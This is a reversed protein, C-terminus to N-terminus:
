TKVLRFGFDVTALGDTQWSIEISDSDLRAVSAVSVVEWDTPVSSVGITETLAISDIESTVTSSGLIKKFYTEGTKKRLFLYQNSDTGFSVFSVNKVHIFDQGSVTDDVIELDSIFSPLLVRGSKGARAYLWARFEEAEQRGNVVKRYMQMRDPFGTKDFRYFKTNTKYDLEFVTRDWSLTLDNSSEPKDTVVIHGDYTPEGTAADFEEGADQSFKVSNRAISDTVISLNNDRTLRCVRLPYVRAKLPWDSAVPNTAEIYTPQVDAITVVEYVDFSIYILAYGGVLFVNRTTDCYVKTDGLSVPQTLHEQYFPLPVAWGRGSMSYYKHKMDRFRDGQSLVNFELFRRPNERLRVVHEKGSYATQVDTAWELREKVGDTWDPLWTWAVIRTGIVFAFSDGVDFSFTFSADITPPGVTSSVDLSSSIYELIKFTYPTTVSLTMGDVGTGSVSNLTVPQLYANWVELDVHTDAPIIGLDAIAPTIHVRNYFDDFYTPM